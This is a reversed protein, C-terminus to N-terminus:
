GSLDPLQRTGLATVTGEGHKVTLRAVNCHGSSTPITVVDVSDATTSEAIVPVSKITCAKGLKSTYLAKGSPSLALIAAVPEQPLAPSSEKPAAVKAAFIAVGVATLVVGVLIVSCSALFIRRLHEYSAVDTLRKSIPVLIEAETRAKEFAAQKAADNPHEQADKWTGTRQALSNNVKEVLQQVNDWGAYLDARKNLKDVLSFPGRDRALQNLVIRNASLVAAAAVISIVVGAIALGFGLNATHLADGSLDSLGTLQLGAIVAAGVAGFTVILWKATDRIRQAQTTLNEAPAASVEDKADAM